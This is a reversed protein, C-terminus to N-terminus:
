QKGKIALPKEVASDKLQDALDNTPSSVALQRNKKTKKLAELSQEVGPLQRGVDHRMLQELEITIATISADDKAFYNNVWQNAESLSQQYSTQRSDILALQAQNILLRLNSRLYYHQEPPLLPKVPEASSHVVVLTKLEQWTQWAIQQLSAIVPWLNNNVPPEIIQAVASPKLRSRQLPLLEISASIAALRLFLGDVDVHDASAIALRDAAIAKRLNLWRPDALSVIIADANALLDLATRGDKAILLRQSALRLLYEVEAIQWDDTTTDAVLALRRNNSDLQQYIDNFQKKHHDSAQQQYQQGATLNKEARDLRKKLTYLSQNATQSDTSLQRLMQQQQWQVWTPYGSLLVAIVAIVIAAIAIRKASSQASTDASVFSQEDLITADEIDINNDTSPQKKM